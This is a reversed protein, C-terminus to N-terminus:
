IISGLCLVCLEGMVPLYQPEPPPGPHTVRWCHASLGPFGASCDLGIVCGLGGGFGATLTVWVGSHLSCPAGWFRLWEEAALATVMDRLGCFGLGM